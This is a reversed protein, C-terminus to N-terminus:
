FLLCVHKPFLIGKEEGEMFSIKLFKGRTRQHNLLNLIWGQLQQPETRHQPAPETGPGPDEVHHM